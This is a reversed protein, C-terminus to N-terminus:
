AMSTLGGGVDQRAPAVTCRSPEPPASSGTHRSILVTSSPPPRLTFCTMRTLGVGVWGLGANGMRGRRKGGGKEGRNGGAGRDM